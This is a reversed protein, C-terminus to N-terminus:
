EIRKKFLSSRCLISTLTMSVKIGVICCATLDEEPPSDFSGSQPDATAPFDRYSLCLTRLGLQAMETVNELLRNRVADTM